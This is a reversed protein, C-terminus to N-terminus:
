CSSRNECGGAALVFVFVSGAGEGIAEELRKRWNCAHRPTTGRHHSRADDADGEGAGGRDRDLEGPRGGVANPVSCLLFTTPLALLCALM